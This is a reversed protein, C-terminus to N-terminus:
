NMSERLHLAQERIMDICGNWGLVFHEQKLHDDCTFASVTACRVCYPDCDADPNIPEHCKKCYIM